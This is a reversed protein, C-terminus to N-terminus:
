KKKADKYRDQIQTYESHEIIWKDINTWAFGHFGFQNVYEVNEGEVSFKLALEVPAISINESELLDRNWFCLSFDEPHIEKIKNERMLKSSTEIFKKSRLSFGGNGVISDGLMNINLQFREIFWDTIIWPAGIYDYKLFDDTWSEPNLIFGDYQVLLVFNTDVYKTLDEACFRSYEEVSGIHPIEIKREDDTPLSTLLKVAGFNINKQCINM